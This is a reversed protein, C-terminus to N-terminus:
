PAESELISLQLNSPAKGFGYGIRFGLERVNSKNAYIAVLDPQKAWPFDNGYPGTYDGYFINHRGSKLLERFPM